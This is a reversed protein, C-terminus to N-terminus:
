NYGKSAFSFDPYHNAKFGNIYFGKGRELNWNPKTDIKKSKILDMFRGEAYTDALLRIKAKIKDTYSWKRM